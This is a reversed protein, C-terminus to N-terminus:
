LRAPRTSAGTEGGVRDGEGQVVDHGVVLHWSGLLLEQIRGRVPVRVQGAWAADPRLEVSGLTLLPIGPINHPRLFQEALEWSTPPTKVSGVKQFPM